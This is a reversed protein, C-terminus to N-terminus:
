DTALAFVAIKTHHADILSLTFDSIEASKVNALMNFYENENVFRGDGFCAMETAGMQGFSLSAMTGSLTGFYNNCGSSGHLNIGSIGLSPPAINASLAKGNLETLLWSGNMQTISADLSPGNKQAVSSVAPVACATFTLAAIFMFARTKNGM